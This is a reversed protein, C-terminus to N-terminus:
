FGRRLIETIFKFRHKFTHYRNVHDYARKSMKDRLKDDKLYKAVANPLEAPTTYAVMSEDLIDRFEDKDLTLLFNGAAPIEFVRHILYSSFMQNIMCLM